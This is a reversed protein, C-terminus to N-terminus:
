WYRLFRGAIVYLQGNNDSFVKPYLSQKVGTSTEGIQVWSNGTLKVVHIGSNYYAVYLSGDSTSYLCSALSTGYTSIASGITIWQSGILEKVYTKYGNSGDTYILYLPVHSCFITRFFQVVSRSNLIFPLLMRSRQNIYMSLLM